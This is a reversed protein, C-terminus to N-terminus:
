PGKNSELEKKKKGCYILLSLEPFSQSYLENHLPKKPVTIENYCLQSSDM